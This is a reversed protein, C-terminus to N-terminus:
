NVPQPLLPPRGPQQLPLQGMPPPPLTGVQQSAGQPQGSHPQGTQQGSPQQTGSQQSGTQAPQTGGAQGAASTVSGRFCGVTYPYEATAHYHYMVVTKGDWEIEHTHGHCEDLTADTMEQGNEGRTGYIGFGDLAYGLLKSHGSGSDDICSTLSHYHYQGRVEPHGECSDQLEHAVADRGGADVANFIPAGSLMIGVQGGACRSTEAVVPNAPMRYTNNQASITNPNPDYAAADDTKAVPFVGTTHDPLGNSRFVRTSGEVTVTMSSQWTVSGDVVPKRTLDFTGASANFWDGTRFAGGAAGYTQQCSWLYGTKPAASIKGDGIPLKTLDVGSASGEDTPQVAVLKVTSDDKSAEGVGVAALM